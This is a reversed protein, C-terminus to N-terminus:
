QAEDDDIAKAVHSEQRGDCKEGSPDLTCVIM